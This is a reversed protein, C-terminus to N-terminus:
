AERARELIRRERQVDVRLLATARAECDPSPHLLVGWSGGFSSDMCPALPPRFRRAPLLLRLRQDGVGPRVIM